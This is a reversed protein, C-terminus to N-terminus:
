NTNQNDKIYKFAERSSDLYDKPVDNLRQLNLSQLSTLGVGDLHVEKMALKFANILEVDYLDNNESVVFMVGEMAQTVGIVRTEDWIDQDRGWEGLWKSQYDFRTLSSITGIDCLEASLSSMIESLNTLQLQSKFDSFNMQYNEELWLAPYIYTLSSTVNSGYCITAEKLDDRSISERLNMKQSLAKGIESPGSVILGYYYNVFESEILQNPVNLNWDNPNLSDVNVNWREGVLIPEIGENEYSLYTIPPLYAFLVSGSVLAEATATYSTAVEIKIEGIDFGQAEMSQVILPKINNFGDLIRETEFVPSFLIIFDIEEETQTSCGTLLIM